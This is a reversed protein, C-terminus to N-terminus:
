VSAVARVAEDVPTDGAVLELTIGSAPTDLLALLVAAVDDRPVTGGGTRLALRVLGTGPEDTLRGPRLITWDLGARSALYADAAGKARLYAAFVPDTGPPPERDAAMASIMLYRRVGAQEAADALLVAAGRDVTDKRAAGSGPGAGAAFVVADAADLHGAVEDVPTSELDLVVPDAGVARLDEAQEPDRIIGVPSDGRETLLKELRMAIQGHGGAVVIRVARGYRGPEAPDKLDLANAKVQEVVV